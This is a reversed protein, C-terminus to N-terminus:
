EEDAYECLTVDIGSPLSRSISEISSFLKENSISIISQGDYDIWFATCDQKLTIVPLQVKKTGFLTKMYRKDFSFLDESLSCAAFFNMSGQWYLYSMVVQIQNLNILKIKIFLKKKFKFRLWEINALSFDKEIEEEQYDMYEFVAYIPFRDLKTIWNCLFKEFGEDFSQYDVIYPASGDISFPFYGGANPIDSIYSEPLFGVELNM